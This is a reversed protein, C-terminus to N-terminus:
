FLNMMDIFPLSDSIVYRLLANDDSGYSSQCRTLCSVKSCATLWLWFFIAMFLWFNLILQMLLISCHLHYNIIMPIMFLRKFLNMM